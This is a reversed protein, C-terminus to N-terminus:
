VVPRWSPRTSEYSEILDLQGLTLEIDDFGGLLKERTHQNIIFDCSTSGYLVKQEELDITIQRQPDKELLAWLQEVDQMPVEALLLGANSSNGRFIDAFSPGIVARIGFDQLAWVAHERSSGCGFNEGVVLITVGQYEPRNLVFNPDKRWDAFLGDEFGTRSIRKLFESPIIQDTDVNAQALPAARGTHSKIPEM